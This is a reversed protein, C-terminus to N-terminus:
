FFIPLMSANRDNVMESSLVNSENFSFPDIAHM